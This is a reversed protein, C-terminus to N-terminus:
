RRKQAHWMEIFTQGEPAPLDRLGSWAEGFPLRALRGQSGGAAKLARAALSNAARYLRPREAVFRWAQLARTEARPRLGAQSQRHRLERLLEPLPIRVPCVTQCRGNLTCANPLDYTSDLGVFLPTLVSGMPGPYVWGYAHGGLSFYVPGIPETSVGSYVPISFARSRGCAVVPQLWHPLTQGTRM